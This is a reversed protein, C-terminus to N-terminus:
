MTDLAQQFCFTPYWHKEEEPLNKLDELTLLRCASHADDAKFKQDVAKFSVRGVVCINTTCALADNAATRFCGIVGELRPKVGCEQKAREKIFEAISRYSHLAGGMMWWKSGFCTGLKRKIALVSNGVGPVTTTLVVDVCASDLGERYGQYVPGPVGGVRHGKPVTLSIKDPIHNPSLQRPEARSFSSFNFEEKYICTLRRQERLFPNVFVACELNVKQGSLSPTDQTGM